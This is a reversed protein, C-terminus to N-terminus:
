IVKLYNYIKEGAKGDINPFAKRIEEDRMDYKLDIGQLVDDRFREFSISDKGFRYYNVNINVPAIKELEPLIRTQFIMVPKKLVMYENILSSHTTILADSVIFSYTYDGFQDIVGNTSKLIRQELNDIYEIWEPFCGCIMTKMLPHPRWIIACDTRNLLADLIEDHYKKAYNGYKKMYISCNPFYSLHTNLLFVKKGYLKSKWEYPVENWVQEVSKKNMNIVADIKPSGYALIKNEPYGMDLYIKKVRESQALIFDANINAPTTLMWFQKEEKYASITFYPAYVLKATSNLLTKSYFREPVRTLNNEEDYPNHIVIIDPYEEGESYKDYHICEVEKPFRDAEYHFVAKQPDSIDYFPIPVVCTECETDTVATKWISEMSTWMDAKYPMFTIRLKDSKIDKRLIEQAHAICKKIEVGMRDKEDTKKAKLLKKLTEAYLQMCRKCKETDTSEDPISMIVECISEELDTVVVKAKAVQNTMMAKIVIDNAESMMCLMDDIQKKLYRRM